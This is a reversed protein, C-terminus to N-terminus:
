EAAIAQPTDLDHLMSQLASVEKQAEDRLKAAEALMIESMTQFILKQHKNLAKVFAKGVADGDQVSISSYVSSSGYTGCYASFCVNLAFGSSREGPLNFGYNQKDYHSKDAYATTFWEHFGGIKEADAKLTKIKAIASANTAMKM